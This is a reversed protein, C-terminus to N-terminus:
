GYHPHIFIAQGGAEIAAYIPDLVPDDLGNGCGSTGIIVGRMCGLTQLRTVEAVIEDVSGSLPLTGFAFLRGGSALCIANMNDNVQRALEAAQQPEVFDLWPNALSIVSIDIGHKDM